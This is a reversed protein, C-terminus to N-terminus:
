RRMTRIMSAIAPNPRFPNYVPGEPEPAGSMGVGPYSPGGSSDISGGFRLNKAINPNPRSPEFPAPAVPPEFTVIPGGPRVPPGFSRATTSRPPTGKGLTRAIAPNPRFPEPSQPEFISRVAKIGTGVGYPLHEAATALRGEPLRALRDSLSQAGSGALLAGPIALANGLAESTEPDAGAMDSAIRGGGGLATGGAAAGITAAPNSLLAPIAEPSYVTGAGEMLDNFAQRKHGGGALEPLVRHLKSVGSNIFDTVPGISPTGGLDAPRAVLNTFQESLPARPNDSTPLAPKPVGPAYAAFAARDGPAPEAASTSSNIPVGGFKSVPGTVESDDVPVGGFKSVPM